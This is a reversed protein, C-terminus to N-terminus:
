HFSFLAELRRMTHFYLLDYRLVAENAMNEPFDHPYAQTLQCLAIKM